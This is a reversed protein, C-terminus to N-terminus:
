PEARFTAEGHCAGVVMVKHVVGPELAPAAGIAPLAQRFGPPTEGYAVVPPLIRNAKSSAVQEELEAQTPDAAAPGTPDRAHGVGSSSAGAVTFPFEGTFGEAVVWWLPTAADERGVAIMMARVAGDPSSLRFLLGGQEVSITVNRLPM